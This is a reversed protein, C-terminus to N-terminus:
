PVKTSGQRVGRDRMWSGAALVAFPAAILLVMEAALRFRIMGTVLVHVIFWTGLFLAPIAGVRFLGRALLTLAGVAGLALVPVYSAFTVLVNRSSAGEYTPRWMNVVKAPLRRLAALPDDRVDKMARAFYAKDRAVEDLEPPLELPSYDRRDVYGGTGGTAGRSNGQYFVVGAETTALVPSGLTLANRATWSALPLLAGLIFLLPLAVERWWSRRVSSVLWWAAGAALFALFSPRTLAAFSGLLGAALALRGEARRIAAVMALLSASALFVFLTETLVYGAWFVLHPYLAVAFASLAAVWARQRPDLEIARALEGAALGAVLASAAGLCAQVVGIALPDAGIRLLAALFLPYGPGVFATPHGDLTMGKGDAINRAIELYLLADGAVFSADFLRLESQLVVYAVRLALGLLVAAALPVPASAARTM